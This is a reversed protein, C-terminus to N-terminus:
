KIHGVLVPEVYSIEGAYLGYTQCARALDTPSTFKVQVRNGYGIRFTTVGVAKNIEAIRSPSVQPMFAVLYENAFVAKEQPASTICRIASAGPSAEETDARPAAAAERYGTGVTESPPPPSSERTITRDAETSPSTPDSISQSSRCALGGFLSVLLVAVFGVFGIQRIRMDM